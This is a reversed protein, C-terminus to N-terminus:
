GREMENRRAQIVQVLLSLLPVAVTHYDASIEFLEIKKPPLPDVEMDNDPEAPSPPISVLDPYHVASVSKEREEQVNKEESEEGFPAPEKHGEDVPHEILLRYPPRWLDGHIAQEVQEQPLRFPPIDPTRPKMHEEVMHASEQLTNGDQHYQSHQNYQQSQQRYGQEYEDYEHRYRHYHYNGQGHEYGHDIEHEYGRDSEHAYRQVYERGHGQDYEHGHRYDYEHSSYRGGHQDHHNHDGSNRNYSRRREDEDEDGHGSHDDWEDDDYHGNDNYGYHSGDDNDRHDREGYTDDRHPVMQVEILADDRFRVVKKTSAHKLILASTVTRGSPTIIVGPGKVAKTSTPTTVKANTNPPKAVTPATPSSASAISAMTITATSTVNSSGSIISFFGKQRELVKDATSSPSVGQTTRPSNASRPSQATTATPGARPSYPQHSSSVAKSSHPSTSATTGSPLHRDTIVSLSLSNTNIRRSAPGGKATPIPSSSVALSSPSSSAATSSSSSIGKAVSESSSKKTFKPLLTMDEPFSGISGSDMRVRKRGDVQPQSAGSRSSYRDGTAVGQVLLDSAANVIEAPYKQDNTLSKITGVFDQRCELPARGLVQIASILVKRAEQDSNNSDDMIDVERRAERIWEVIKVLGTTKALEDHIQQNKTCNLIILIYKRGALDGALSMIKALQHVDEKKTISGGRLFHSISTVIQSSSMEFGYCIYSIIRCNADSPKSGASFIIDVVVHASYTYNTNAFGRSIASGDGIDKKGQLTKDETVSLHKAIDDIEAKDPYLRMKFVSELYARQETNFSNRPGNRARTATSTTITVPTVITHIPRTGSNEHRTDGSTQAAQSSTSDDLPPGGYKYPITVAKLFFKKEGQESEGNSSNSGSNTSIFPRPSQGDMPNLGSAM